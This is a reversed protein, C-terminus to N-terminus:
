NEVIVGSLVELDNLSIKINEGLESLTITPLAIDIAMVDNLEKLFSNMGAEDFSANSKEDLKITGDENKVGYKMIAAQRIEEYKVFEENAIKVIGKLKFTVRLPIAETSLRGLVAFFRPDVIKSLKM